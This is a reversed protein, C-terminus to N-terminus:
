DARGRAELEMCLEETFAAMWKQWLREIIPKSIEMLAGGVGAEDADLKATILERIDERPVSTEHTSQAETNRAM